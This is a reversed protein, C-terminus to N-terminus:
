EHEYLLYYPANRIHIGFQCIRKADPTKVTIDSSFERDSYYLIIYMLDATISLNYIFSHRHLYHTTHQTYTLKTIKLNQTILTYITSQLQSMYQLCSQIITMEFCDCRLFYLLHFFVSLM